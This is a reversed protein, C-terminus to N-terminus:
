DLPVKAFLIGEQAIYDLTEVLPGNNVVHTLGLTLHM